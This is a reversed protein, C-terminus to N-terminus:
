RQRASHVADSILDWRNRYDALSWGTNQVRPPLHLTRVATGGNRRQGKAGPASAWLQHAAKVGKAMAMAPVIYFVYEQSKAAPEPIGALVWFFRSGPNIEAKRGVSVTRDGPRFTKVQIHCFGTAKADSVLIDTNPCNGLTVVAVLQRRCLEAAVYFQAANARYGKDARSDGIGGAPSPNKSMSSVERTM